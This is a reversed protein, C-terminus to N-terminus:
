RCCITQTTYVNTNILKWYDISSQPLSLESHMQDIFILTASSTRQTESQHQLSNTICAMGPIANHMKSSWM